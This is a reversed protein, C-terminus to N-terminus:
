PFLPPLWPYAPNPDQNYNMPSPEARPVEPLIDDSPNPPSHTSQSEAAVRDTSVKRESFTTQSAADAKQDASIRKHDTCRHPDVLAQSQHSPDPPHVEIIHSR